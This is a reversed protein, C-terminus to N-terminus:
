VFLGFLVFWFFLVFFFLSLLIFFFFQSLMSPYMRIMAMAHNVWEEIEPGIELQGPPLIDDFSDTSDKTSGDSSANTNTDTNTNTNTNTNNTNKNDKSILHSNDSFNSYVEILLQRLKEPEYKTLALISDIGRKRLQRDISETWHPM